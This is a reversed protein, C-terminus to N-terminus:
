TFSGKKKWGPSVHHISYIYCLNSLQIYFHIKSNCINQTLLNETGLSDAMILHMKNTLIFIEGKQM